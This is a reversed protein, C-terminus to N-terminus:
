QDSTVPLPDSTVPWKKRGWEARIGYTGSKLEIKDKGKAVVSGNIRVEGAQPPLILRAIAGVPIEVEMTFEDDLIKWDTLIKGLPTEIHTRAWTIGEPVQPRILFQRYGPATDSPRIGGIAQYFWQGIGNYCNHIRSRDGNWHEWTTTAGNEIMHLYGPYDTKKLIGYIFDDQESRIAWETLVPVGVLGCAIHGDYEKATSELLSNTVEGIRDAPVINALLPYALDIQTGTGYTGSGPHFFRENIAKRLGAAKADYRIADETKGLIAAIRSMDEYCVSLFSNNVLDISEPATQDVGDPSAWDGLYWGRYDTDPWKRLLTDVTYRDVYGLWKQMVPYYRSLMRQDGYNLYTRWTATIIFGCWYPGGGAPYPNPATHPMGGDPRICDAWAQLWNRYLPALQYMMQATATSANGDGGYGLREVTPCDVLYGGLTLCQLTYRVMDHIRNLDPDSCEFGSKSDYGTRVLNGTVSDPPLTGKLNSIRIYRFGHYNFKNRFIEAGKGAAIYRDRQRQDAPKGDQDLHDAYDIVIVQRAELKPFHIEAQGTLTTGMDVLVTDMGLPRVYLAKVVSAIRNHEVMQPTAQRAPVKAITVPMWQRDDSSDSALDDQLRAGDVTEGGFQWPKWTGQRTYASKRGSWSGDTALVVQRQGGTVKELQARVLPGDNAVGPLGPSYWGSGLWLMLDNAGKKQLGSLDYTVIQSRKDFQSVAPALLGDGLKKGNLYVEHYGLSNVHLLWCGEAEGADFTRHLQPCERYGSDTPFGIFSAQWDDPSLLGIGFRAVRSWSSAKGRDDWVRVKWYYLRGPQLGKGEYPLLIGDPSEKKGSDWLDARGPSLNAPDSAVLIRFYKQEAGNRSSRIKWSLGPDAHDIAVPDTLNECRLEYVFPKRSLSCGALLLVSVLSILPFCIRTKM